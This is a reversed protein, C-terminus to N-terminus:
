LTLITDQQYLLQSFSSTDFIQCDIMLDTATLGRQTLSAQEVILAHDLDYLSLSSFLQFVPHKGIMNPQQQQVLQLVGDDIFFLQVAQELAGAALFLDLSEAAQSTGYPATRTVIALSM